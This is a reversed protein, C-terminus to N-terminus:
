TKPKTTAGQKTKDPMVPNQQATGPIVIIPMVIPSPAMNNTSPLYLSNVQQMMEDMLKQMSHRASEQQKQMEQISKIQDASLKQPNGYQILQFSKPGKGDSSIRQSFIFTSQGGNSMDDSKVWGVNGNRPDGVKVWKGDATSFIPIIGVALDAKGEVKADAKPEAYLAIEKAMAAMSFSGLCLSLLLMTSALLYRRIKM